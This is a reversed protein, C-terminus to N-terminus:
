VDRWSNQVPKRGVQLGGPALSPYPQQVPPPSRSAYTVGTEQQGYSSPEYRTSESPTYASYSQRQLRHDPFSQQHSGFGTNNYRQPSTPSTAYPSDHSAFDDHAYPNGLDGGNQVGQQQYPLSAASPYDTRPSPAQHALMPARALDITGLEVDDNKHEEMVRRHSATDWSPMAPLADDHIKGTRSVDFQAFQPQGSYM